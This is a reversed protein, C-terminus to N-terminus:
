QHTKAHAIEKEKASAQAPYVCRFGIFDSADGRMAYNRHYTTTSFPDSKWSGGRIAKYHEVTGLEKDQKAIFMSTPASSGPYPVFDNEVWEDVNGAMDVAGYPSANNMHAFVSSTSGVSNYTNLMKPSMRNGWPWRRGDTGRAAKEWQAETPLTGGAWTCYDMADQWYVNVVPHLKYGVPIAGNPWSSPAMHAVEAIFLAYQANTVPFKDIRFAKVTATHEPKDQTDSEPLSSGMLFPGAPVSVKQALQQWINDKVLSAAAEVNYVSVNDTRRHAADVFEGAAQIHQTVESQSMADYGAHVRMQGVRGKALFLTHFVGALFAGAVCTILVTSIFRRRRILAGESIKQADWGIQRAM